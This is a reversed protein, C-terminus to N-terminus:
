LLRIGRLFHGRNDVPHVKGSVHVLIPVLELVKFKFCCCSEIM